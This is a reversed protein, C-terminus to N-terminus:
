QRYDSIIEGSSYTFIRGDTDEIMISGNKNIGRMIGSVEGESVNIIIERGLKYANDMWKGQIFENGSISWKDLYDSFYEMFKALLDDDRLVIKENLISSIKYPSEIESPYSIINVGIGCVIWDVTKKTATFKSEILIGAIKAGNLMIDNPWKYEVNHGSLFKIADGLAVAAVFIIQSAKLIPFHDQLLLSLYLNGPESVWRRNGKGRGNTQAKSWILYNGKQGRAAIRKAEESTSDITDFILVNYVDHWLRLKM